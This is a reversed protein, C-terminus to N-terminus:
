RTIGRRSVITAIDPVISALVDCSDLSCNCVPNGSGDVTCVCRFKCEELHAQLKGECQCICENDCDFSCDSQGVVGTSGCGGNCRSNACNCKCTEAIGGIKQDVAPTLCDSINYRCDPNCIVAGSIGGLTNCQPDTIAQGDCDEATGNIIGDGCFGEKIVRPTGGLSSLTGGTAPAIQATSTPITNESASISALYQKLKEEESMPTCSILFGYILVLAIKFIVRTLILM